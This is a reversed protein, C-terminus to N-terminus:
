LVQSGRANMVETLAFIRPMLVWKQGPAAWPLPQQFVWMLKEWAQVEASAADARAKAEPSFDDPAEIILFLRNGTRYIELEDIGSARLSAVVSPWIKDARHWAEYDAILAPDDKLDLAYVLRKM